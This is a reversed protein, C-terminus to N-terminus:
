NVGNLKIFSIDTLPITWSLLSFFNDKNVAFFSTMHDVYQVWYIGFVNVKKLLILTSLMGMPNMLQFCIQLYKM